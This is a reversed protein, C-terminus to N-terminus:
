EGDGSGFSEAVSTDDEIRLALASVRFIGFAISVLVVRRFQSGLRNFVGDGVLWAVWDPLGM